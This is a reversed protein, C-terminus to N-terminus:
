YDKVFKYLMTSVKLDMQINLGTKMALILINKGVNKGDPAEIGEATSQRQFTKKNNINKRNIIM